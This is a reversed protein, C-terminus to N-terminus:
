LATRPSSLDTRPSSPGLVVIPIAQARGLAIAHQTFLAVRGGLRFMAKCAFRRTHNSLTARIVIKAGIDDQRVYLDGLSTSIRIVIKLTRSDRSSSAPSSTGFMHHRSRVTKSNPGVTM